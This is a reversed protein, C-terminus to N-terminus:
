AWEELGVIHAGKIMWILKTLLIVSTGPFSNSRDGKSSFGIGDEDNQLIERQDMNHNM